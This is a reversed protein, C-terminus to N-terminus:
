VVIRNNSFYFLLSLEIGKTFLGKELNIGGMREAQKGHMWRRTEVPLLRFLLNM